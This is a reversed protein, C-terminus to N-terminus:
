IQKEGNRIINLTHPKVKYAFPSGSENSIYFGAPISNDRASLISLRGYVILTGDEIEGSVWSKNTFGTGMKFNM